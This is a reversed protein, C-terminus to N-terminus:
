STMAKLKRGFHFPRGDRRLIEVRNLAYLDLQDRQGYVTTFAGFYGAEKVMAKTVENFFGAPYALSTCPRQVLNEVAQKSDFIEERATQDDIQNLLRHNMGHSGFEICSDAMERIEGASLHERPGEGEATVLDTTEGVCSPVLFITAKIGLKKLIRFAHIYNDKWGDDFTVALSREPFRGNEAFHSLLESAHRFTWGRRKLYIMQREFTRPATFAGRIKVDPTPVDIKHYLLVPPTM